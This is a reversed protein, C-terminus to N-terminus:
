ICLSSLLLFVRIIYSLSTHGKSGAGSATLEIYIYAVVDVPESCDADFSAPL